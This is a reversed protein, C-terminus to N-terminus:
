ARRAREQETRRKDYESFSISEDFISKTPPVHGKAAVTKIPAPAKTTTKTETKPTSLKLELKGIERAAALPNLANIRELEAPNKALEYMVAPAIDSTIIAQALAPIMKVHEIDDMVEEFDPATKVFEKLKANYSEQLTKAEKAENAKAEKAREEARETDLTWKAVAKTYEAYSKFDDPNPEAASVAKAATQKALEARLQEIEKERESLVLSQRELKKQFGGKKKPKVEEQPEESEEAAAAVETEEAETEAVEEAQAETATTEKVEEESLSLAADTSETNM